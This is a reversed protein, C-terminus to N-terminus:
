HKMSMCRKGQLTHPLGVCVFICLWIDGSCSPYYAAVIIVMATDRHPCLRNEAMILICLVAAHFWSPGENLLNADWPLRLFCFGDGGLFSEDGGSDYIVGELKCARLNTHKNRRLSSLASKVQFANASFRGRTVM